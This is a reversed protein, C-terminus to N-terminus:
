RWFRDISLALPCCAWADIPLWCGDGLTFVKQLKSGCIQSSIIVDRSALLAQKLPELVDHLSIIKPMKQGFNQGSFIVDRSPHKRGFRTEISSTLAATLASSVFALELSFSQDLSLLAEKAGDLLKCVDSSATIVTPALVEAAVSRAAQMGHLLGADLTCRVQPTDADPFCWSEYILLPLGDGKGIAHRKLFADARLNLELLPSQVTVPVQVGWMEVEIVRKRLLVPNNAYDAIEDAIQEKWALFADLSLKDTALKALAEGIHAQLQEANLLGHVYGYIMEGLASSSTIKKVQPLVGM